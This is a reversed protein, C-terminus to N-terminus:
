DRKAIMNLFRQDQRLGALDPQRSLEQLIDASAPRLIELARDRQGMAEFTLVARRIVIKDQGGLMLAQALEREANRRDGARLAFYAVFSRVAADRPNSMLRSEALERGRRYALASDQVRGLRRYSDGLNLLLIYSEPGSARARELYKVAEADRGMYVYLAGLNNLVARSNSDIELARRLEREAEPWRGMDTYLGGLNAHGALSGPALETVRRWHREAESYNGLRRYFAAFDLLPGIYGPQLEVAKSYAAAAEGQHDQMEEYARALGRWAEANGPDADIVRRFDEAAREYQGPVLNLRGSALRVALSDPRRREAEALQERGRALWKPDSTMSWASFTAEAFGARPLASNPDLAIAEEFGAAAQAYNAAGSRLLGMAEIYAPYAAPEVVEPASQRPLRFASFVMASVAAAVGAADTKPFTTSVERLPVKTRTDVIAARLVLRESEQVVKGRLVHTAGLREGAEAPDVTALSRTEEIPIIVVQPPRPRLRMLRGSVDYSAGRVLAVTQADAGETELPTLAVRAAPPDPWIVPWLVIALIVAVAAALVIRRRRAAKGSLAAAVAAASRFRKAPDPNVCRAIVRRWMAPLKPDLHQQKPRHGTVIEHLVIGLAYIDSAVSAPVGFLREPALYGPSGAVDSATPASDSDPQEQALGFDTVVAREGGDRAKALLVNNSKLDRHLVGQEHAAQVGACIQVAIRLAVDAPMAGHKKLHTSLTGGDIFEMSLFDVWGLPTAATHIEFVRCVNPHTVRLSNRAEPPLHNNFGAKACKIARRENLKQDTALYVVGMGGEAIEQEILFRGSVLDGPRFPRVPGGPEPTHLTRTAEPDAPADVFEVIDPQKGEPEM